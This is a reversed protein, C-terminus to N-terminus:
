KRRSKVNTRKKSKPKPKQKVGAPTATKVSVTNGAEESQKNILNTMEENHTLVYSNISRIKAFRNGGVGIDNPLADFAKNIRYESIIGNQVDNYSDMILKAKYKTLKKM